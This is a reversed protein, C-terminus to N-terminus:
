NTILIIQFSELKSVKRLSGLAIGESRTTRRSANCVYANCAHNIALCKGNPGM